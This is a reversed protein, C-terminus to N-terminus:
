TRSRELENLRRGHQDLRFDRAEISAKLAGFGAAMDGRLEAKFTVLEHEIADFRKNMVGLLRWVDQLTPNRQGM